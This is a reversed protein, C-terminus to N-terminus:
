ADHSLGSYPPRTGAARRARLAAGAVLFAVGSIFLSFKCIASPDPVKAVQIAPMSMLYGFAALSVVGYGRLRRDVEGILLLVSAMGSLYLACGVVAAAHYCHCSAGCCGFGEVIVHWRGIMGLGAGLLCAAATTRAITIRARAAM